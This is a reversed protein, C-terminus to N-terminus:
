RREHAGCVLSWQRDASSRGISINSTGILPLHSTGRVLEPLAAMRRRRGPGANTTSKAVGRGSGAAIVALPAASVTATSAANLSLTYPKIQREEVRHPSPLEEDIEIDDIHRGTLKISQSSGSGGAGAKAHNPSVSATAFGGASAGVSTLQVGREVIRHPSPMAPAQEADWMRPVVRSGAKGGSKAGAAITSIGAAAQGTGAASALVETTVAAARKVRHAHDGADYQPVALAAGALLIQLVVPTRM